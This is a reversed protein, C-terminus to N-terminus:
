PTATQSEDPSIMPGGCRPCLLDREAFHYGYDCGDNWGADYAVNDLDDDPLSDFQPGMRNEPM